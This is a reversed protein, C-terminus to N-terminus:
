EAPAFLPDQTEANCSQSMVKLVGSLDGPDNESLMNISNCSSTMVIPLHAICSSYVKTNLSLESNAMAGAFGRLSYDPKEGNSMLGFLQEYLLNDECAIAVDTNCVSAIKCTFDVLQEVLATDQSFLEVPPTTEEEDDEILHFVGPTDDNMTQKEGCASGVINEVSELSGLSNISSCSLETFSNLCTGLVEENVGYTGNNVGVRIDALTTSFDQELGLEDTLNVNEMDEACFTALESDCSHVEACIGNIIQTVADDGAVPVYPENDKDENVFFVDDGSDEGCESNMVEELSMLSDIDDIFSVDECTLTDIYDVCTNLATDSYGYDGSELGARILALTTFNDEPLGFEDNLTLGEMGAHCTEELNPHCAILADCTENIITTVPDIEGGPEPLATLPLAAQFDDVISDDCSMGVIDTVITEPEDGANEAITECSLSNLANYCAWENTPSLKSTGLLAKQTDVVEFFDVHVDDFYYTEQCTIFDVNSCQAARSCALDAIDKMTYVEFCGGTEICSPITEEGDGCASCLLTVCLLTMIIKKM